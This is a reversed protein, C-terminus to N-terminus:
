ALCFLMLPQTKFRTRRGVAQSHGCALRSKRHAPIRLSMKRCRLPHPSYHNHRHCSSKKQKKQISPPLRRSFGKLLDKSKGGAENLDQDSDIDIEIVRRQSVVPRAPAPNSRRESDQQLNQLSLQAGSSKVGRSLNSNSVNQVSLSPATNSASAATIDEMMTQAKDALRDKTQTYSQLRGPAKKTKSNSSASTSRASTAEAPTKTSELLKVASRIKKESNSKPQKSARSIENSVQTSSVHEHVTGGQTAAVAEADRGVVQVKAKKGGRLVGQAAGGVVQDFLSRDLEQRAKDQEEADQMSKLRQEILVRVTELDYGQQHACSSIHNLKVAGSKKATWAAKCVPCDSLLGMLGLPIINSVAPDVANKGRLQKKSYTRTEPASTSAQPDATSALPVSRSKFFNTATHLPRQTPQTHARSGNNKNNNFAFKAKLHQGFSTGPSAESTSQDSSLTAPSDRTQQQQQQQQYQNQHPRPPTIPTVSQSTAFSNSVSPNEFSHDDQDRAGPLDRGTLSLASASALGSPGAQPQQVPSPSDDLSLPSRARSRQLRATEREPESDSVHQPSSLLQSQQQQQHFAM